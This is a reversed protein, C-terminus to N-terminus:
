TPVTSMANKLKDGRYGTERCNQDSEGGSVSSSDHPGQTSVDSHVSGSSKDTIQRVFGRGHGFVNSLSGTKVMGEPTRPSLGRNLNEEEALADLRGAASAISRLRGSPTNAPEFDLFTNKVVWKTSDTMSLATSAAQRTIPSCYSAADVSQAASNPMMVMSGMLLDDEQLTALSCLSNNSAISRLSNSSPHCHLSGLSIQAPKTDMQPGVPMVEGSESDGFDSESCLTNLRGSASMVPRLRGPLSSPPGDSFELFTNKVVLQHGCSNLYPPLPLGNQTEMNTDTNQYPTAQRAAQRGAYASGHGNGAFNQLHAMQMENLQPFQSDIGAQLRAAGARLMAAQAEHAQAAQGVSYAAAQVAFGTAMHEYSMLQQTQFLEHQWQQPMAMMHQQQHFQQHPHLQKQKPKQAGKQQKQPVVGNDIPDRLPKPFEESMCVASPAPAARLEDKQHAYRCAADDCRGVSFLQKCLKTRFLDPLPQMEVHDHAFQCDSGRTCKGLIFFKCMKTKM